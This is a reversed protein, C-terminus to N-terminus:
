KDSFQLLVKGGRGSLSNHELAKKFQQWPFIEAVPLQFSQRGLIDTLQTIMENRQFKTQGSLYGRIGFGQIMLNKYVIQGNNFQAPEDKTRGYIVIRGFPAMNQIITTLLSGGVMDLAARLGDGETALQIQNALDPADLQFVMEAGLAQLQEAQAIDRVLAIVRVGKQRALQIIIQGLASNAGTLLMWEGASPAAIELLGWASMPNLSFQAAREVPFDAPLVALEQAPVLVYEAWTDKYFFAVMAGVSIGTDRGAEEVIGAAELGATQGPGQSKIRYAGEIFFIDSPNIPAALVRVLVEKDGPTPKEKRIIQLVEEPSGTNDFAITNM